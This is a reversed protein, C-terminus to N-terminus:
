KLACRLVSASMRSAMAATVLLSVDKSVAVLRFGTLGASTAPLCRATTVARSFAFLHALVPVM